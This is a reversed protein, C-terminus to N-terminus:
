DLSVRKENEESSRETSSTFDEEEYKRDKQYTKAAEREHEESIIKEISFQKLPIKPLIESPKWSQSITDLEATTQTKGMLYFKPLGTYHFTVKAIKAGVPITVPSKSTNRIIMIQRSIDGMNAWCGDTVLTLGAYGLMRRGCIEYVVMNLAGIFEQSYGLITTEGPVIIAKRGIPISCKNFMEQDITVAKYPGEWHRCIRKKNWPNLYEGTDSFVYYQEGMTLNYSCHGLNRTKFPEICINGQRIEHVIDQDSLVAAANRIRTERKRKEKPFSNKLDHSSSRQARVQAFHERRRSSM